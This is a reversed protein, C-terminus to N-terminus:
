RYVKRYHLLDLPKRKVFRNRIWRMQIRAYRRTSVKMEEIGKKLLDNKVASDENSGNTELYQFYEDFEKFGISQFIGFQYDRSYEKLTQGTKRADFEKKFSDLEGLLGNQIMQDVRDDLRKNLVKFLHIQNDHSWNSQM